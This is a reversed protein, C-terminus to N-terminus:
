STKSESDVSCESNDEEDTLEKSPQEEELIENEEGVSDLSESSLSCDSVEETSDSNDESACEKFFAPQVLIENKEELLVLSEMYSAFQIRDGPDELYAYVDNDVDYLLMDGEGDEMLIQDYDTFFLCRRVKEQIVINILLTWSEADGYEKMMWVYCRENGEYTCLCLCEKLIGVVLDPENPPSGFEPIRIEELEEEGVHFSLIVYKKTDWNIAVWHLCENVLASSVESVVFWPFEPVEIEEWSNTRFSYVEVDSEIFLHELDLLHELDKEWELFRVIKYDDSEQHYGFGLVVKSTISITRHAIGSSHLARWKRISPNILYIPQGDGYPDFVCVLGHVSGVFTFFWSYGYPEAFKQFPFEIELALDFTVCSFLSFKREHLYLLYADSMSKQFYSYELHSNIFNPKKIFNYWDKCVSMCIVIFEVPLRVIIALIIETPLNTITTPPLDTPKGFDDSNASESDPNEKIRKMM